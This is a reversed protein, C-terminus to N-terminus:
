ADGKIRGSITAVSQGAKFHVAQIQQAPVPAAALLARSAPSFVASSLHEPCLSDLEQGACKEFAHLSAHRACPAM